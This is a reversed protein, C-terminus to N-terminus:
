FGAFSLFDNEEPPRYPDLFGEPPLFDELGVRKITNCLRERPEALADYRELVQELLASVGDGTIGAAIRTAHVPKRSGGRGGIYIDYTDSGTAIIGYDACLPDTCGRHCGALAIKFDCPTRRNMFRDQLQGGLEFVDSLARQCLDKNGACAKVNRVTEGFVGVKLGLATVGARLEELRNEPIIFILTQRTTMKCYRCELSRALTGLGALQEPTLLGCRGVIGVGLYGSRQQFIADGM